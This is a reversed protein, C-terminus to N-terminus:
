DILRNVAATNKLQNILPTPGRCIGCNKDWFGQGKLLMPHLFKNTQQKEPGDLTKSDYLKDENPNTILACDGLQIV